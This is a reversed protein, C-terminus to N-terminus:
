RVIRKEWYFIPSQPNVSIKKREALAPFFKKQKWVSIRYMKKNKVIEVFAAIIKLEQRESIPYFLNETVPNWNRM